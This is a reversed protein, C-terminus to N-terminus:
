WADDLTPAALREQSFVRRYMAHLEFEGLLGVAQQWWLARQENRSRPEHKAERTNLTAQQYLDQREAPTPPRGHENYFVNALEGARASIERRRTSWLQILRTDVGAVERVPRRGDIRLVDIFRLGLAASLHAELATNYTESAATLAKHMARGDIARWQGDAVAQVKNAVAVHTHLDPDGARNDRHTFAAAVLGTVDVQEVGAHGKRTKLVEAEIFRLADTVAAWHAKEIVAATERDAIAWLSSVSKVPSFTLDYGAVPTAPPRSMRTIFGSLERANPVRHEMATFWEVGLETRLKARVQDPLKATPENGHARNWAAYRHHLEQRFLSTRTDPQRYPRGLRVADRRQQETADPGLLALRQAALPHLGKGFLFEMQEATVRDGAKLGEIGALGSGLWVGPAEGKEDYYDALPTRAPGVADNRAVQRALYDYGSGATLKQMGMVAIM